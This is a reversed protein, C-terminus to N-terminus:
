CRRSSSLWRQATGRSRMSAFARARELDEETLELEVREFAHAKPLGLAEHASPHNHPARPTM